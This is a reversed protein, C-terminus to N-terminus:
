MQKSSAGADAARGPMDTDQALQALQLGLRQYDDRNVATRLARQLKGGKAAKELCSANCVYAGRGPMRGSADLVPGDQTRVIRLLQMKPMQAGCGVCTRMRKAEGPVARAGPNTSIDAAVAM